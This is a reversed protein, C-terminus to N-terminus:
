RQHRGLGDLRCTSRGQRVAERQGRPCGGSRPGARRFAIRATPQVSRAGGFLAEVARRRNQPGVRHDDEMRRSDHATSRRRGEVADLQQGTGGGRRGPCGQTCNPGHSARRTSQPRGRRRCRCARRHRHPPGGARRCGRAREREATDRGAGRCHSQDQTCRRHRGDSARRAARDRHELRRLASGFHAFAAETDGAQWSGVVREGASSILWVTGDADVRGFRHPDSAPMTTAVVLHAHPRQTPRPGPRPGPRPIPRPTNDPGDPTM